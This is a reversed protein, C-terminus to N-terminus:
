HVFLKVLVAISLATNIGIQWQLFNLRATLDSRLVALDAKTAVENGLANGSEM